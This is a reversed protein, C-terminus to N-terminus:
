ELTIIGTVKRISYSSFDQAADMGHGKITQTPTQIVVFKDTFIKKHTIDWYLEETKMSRKDRRNQIDVNGRVVYQNKIKIFKAYNAKLTSAVTSDNEFFTLHVGEPFERDGNQFENQIPASLDVKLVASDSYQTHVNKISILPGTYLPMEAMTHPKEGCSLTILLACFNLLILTNKKARVM